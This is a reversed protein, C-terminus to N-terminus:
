DVWLGVPGYRAPLGALAGSRGTPSGGSWRCRFPAADEHRRDALEHTMAALALDGLDLRRGHALVPVAQLLALLGNRAGRLLTANAKLDAGHGWLFGVRRKPLDRAHPQGILHFDRGVDRADAV